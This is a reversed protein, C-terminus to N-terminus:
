IAAASEALLQMLWVQAPDSARDRMQLVGVEVPPSEYPPELLQLSGKQVAREALRRPALAAMDSRAVVALATYSDPVVAGVRRVLGRRMLEHDLWQKPKAQFYAADGGAPRRWSGDLSLM